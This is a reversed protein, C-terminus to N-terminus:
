ALDAKWTEFKGSDLYLGDNLVEMVWKNCYELIYSGTFWPTLMAEAKDIARLYDAHAEEPVLDEIEMWSNVIDNIARDKAKEDLESLEFVNYTKTITQM